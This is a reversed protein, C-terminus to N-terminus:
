GNQTTKATAQPLYLNELIEEDVPTTLLTNDLSTPDLPTQYPPIIDNIDYLSSFDEAPMYQIVENGAAVTVFFM